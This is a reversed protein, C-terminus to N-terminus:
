FVYLYSVGFATSKPNKNKYVNLYESKATAFLM